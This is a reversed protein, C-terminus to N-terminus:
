VAVMEGFGGRREVDGDKLLGIEEVGGRIDRFAKM